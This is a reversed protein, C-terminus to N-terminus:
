LPLHFIHVVLWTGIGALGVVVAGAVVVGLPKPPVPREPSDYPFTAVVRAHIAPDYKFAQFAVIIAGFFATFVQLAAPYRHGAMALLMTEGGLPISMAVAVASGGVPRTFIDSFGAWRGEARFKDNYVQVSRRLRSDFLSLVFLSGSLGISAHLWFPEITALVSVGVLGLPVGVFTLVANAVVFWSLAGIVADYGEVFRM